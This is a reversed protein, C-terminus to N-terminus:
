FKHGLNGWWCCDRLYYYEPLSDILARGEQQARQREHFEILCFPDYHIM